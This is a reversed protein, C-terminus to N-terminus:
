YATLFLLLRRLSARSDSSIECFFHAETGGGEATDRLLPRSSCRFANKFPSGAM